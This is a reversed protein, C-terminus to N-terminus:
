LWSPPTTPSDTAPIPVLEQQDPEISTVTTSLRLDIQNADYYDESHVFAADRGVEGRLYDKSLPPREYPRVAEEGLLVVEGGYGESRLTEATKAGALSAGIIVVRRPDVM